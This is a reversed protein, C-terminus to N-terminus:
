LKKSNIYFNKDVSFNVKGNPYMKLTKWQEAPNLWQEQKFFVKVPMNFGKVCNTWRYKLNYGEIKYELTPVKATRLYQDFVKSFDKGSNNNIYDEIQKTTVTQHYFIKNLGRLIMRFKEDDNIIQRITHLMNGGKYYMDTSGENNVGYKGIVPIDNAIKKRVGTIYESGAKKGFYYETFLTESYHTFSEHVWMDAIDKTTINNGFWEHGSEHVIMFDWKM